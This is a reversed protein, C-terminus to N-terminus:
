VDTKEGWTESIQRIKDAFFIYDYLMDKIDGMTMADIEEKTRQWDWDVPDLIFLEEEVYNRFIEANSM